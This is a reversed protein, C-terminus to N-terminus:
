PNAAERADDVDHRTVHQEAYEIADDMSDEWRIHDQYGCWTGKSCEYSAQGEDNRIVTAENQGEGHVKITTM